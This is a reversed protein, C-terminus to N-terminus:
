CYFTHPKYVSVCFLQKSTHFASSGGEVGGFCVRSFAMRETDIVHKGQKPKNEIVRRYQGPVSFSNQNTAFYPATGNARFAVDGLTVPQQFLQESINIYDM